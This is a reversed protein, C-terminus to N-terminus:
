EESLLPVSAWLRSIHAYLRQPEGNLVFDPMQASVEGLVLRGLIRSLPAGICFHIGEGFALHRKIKRSLDLRDPEPFEREDHNASAYLLAVRAGAPLRTGNVETEARTVRALYQTPSEFRLLEELADPIRDPNAAMWERQAPHDALAQIGGTLMGAPSDIGAVWLITALGAAEAPRLVGQRIQSALLAMVVVEERKGVWESLASEMYSNIKRGSVAAADPLGQAGPTREILTLTEALLTERDSKPVGLLEGIADAASPWAIEQAFDFERQEACRAVTSAIASRLYGEIELVGRGSLKAQVIKRLRGHEPPDVSAFDGTGIVEETGDPDVAGASLFTRWDRAAAYVDRFRSLVWFDRGSHHYVSAQDRLAKYTEWPELPVDFPDFTVTESDESVTTAM